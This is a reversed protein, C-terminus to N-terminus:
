YVITLGVAKWLSLPSGGGAQRGYCVICTRATKEEDLCRKTTCIEAMM